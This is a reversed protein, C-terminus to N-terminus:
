GKCRQAAGPSRHRISCGSHTWYKARPRRRGLPIYFRLPGFGFRLGIGM